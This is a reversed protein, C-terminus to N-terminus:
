PPTPNMFSASAKSRALWDMSFSRVDIASSATKTCDKRSSCIIGSVRIMDETAYPSRSAPVPLTIRAFVTPTAPITNAFM